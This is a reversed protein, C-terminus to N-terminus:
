DCNPVGLFCPLQDLVVVTYTYVLFAALLLGAWHGLKLAKVSREARLRRLAPTLLLAIFLTHLSMFIFLVFPFEEHTTRRNVWQLVMFPAVLAASLLLPTVFFKLIRPAAQDHTPM